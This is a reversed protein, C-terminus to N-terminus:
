ENKEEERAHERPITCVGAAELAQQMRNQRQMTRPKSPRLNAQLMQVGDCLGSQSLEMTFKESWRWLLGAATRKFLDVPTASGQIHPQMGDTGLNKKKKTGLNM